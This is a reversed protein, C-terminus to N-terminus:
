CRGSVKLWASSKQTRKAPSSSCAIPRRERRTMRAATGATVVAVPGRTRYSPNYVVLDPTGLDADVADFLADVSAPDAADCAYSRAGTEAALSALKDTRRAAMAVAMGEAACLRVLSGSLGDGAGVILASTQSSM